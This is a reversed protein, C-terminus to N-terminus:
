LVLEDSLTNAHWPRWSWRQVYWICARVLPISFARVMNRGLELSSVRRAANVRALLPKYRRVALDTPQHEGDVCYAQTGDTCTLDSTSDM